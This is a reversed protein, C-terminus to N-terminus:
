TSTFVGWEAIAPDIEVVTSLSRVTFDGHVTGSDNGAALWHGGLTQGTAPHLTNTQFLPAILFYDWTGGTLVQEQCRSPISGRGKMLSSSNKNM